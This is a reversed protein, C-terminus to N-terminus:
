SLEVTPRTLMPRGKPRLTLLFEEEPMGGSITVGDITGLHEVVARMEAMAFRQGICSRDGEGFPFFAGVQQISVDGSWRAPSFDAPNNFWRESRQLLYPSIILNTGSTIRIEGQNIDEVVMRPLVWAPPHLRLTENILADVNEGAHALYGGEAAECILWTLTNATTEHGALLLTLLEDEQAMRTWTEPDEIGSSRLAGLVDDHSAPNDSLLLSNAFSRLRAVREVADLSDNSGAALALAVRMVLRFGQAVPNWGADAASSTSILAARALLRSASLTSMEDDFDSLFPAVPPAKGGALLTQLVVDLSFAQLDGKLDITSENSWQGVLEEALRRMTVEYAAMKKAAFGRIVSRRHISHNPEEALLVGNGLSERAVEFFPGKVLAGGHDVLVSRVLDPSHLVTFKLGAFDVMTLDDGTRDWDRMVTAPDGLLERFRGIVDVGSIRRVSM